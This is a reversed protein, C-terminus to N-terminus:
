AREGPRRRIVPCLASGFDLQESQTRETLSQESLTGFPAIWNTLLLNGPQLENM